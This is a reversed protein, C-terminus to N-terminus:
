EAWSRSREVAKHWLSVLKERKDSEMQPTFTVDCSMHKKVDNKDKWFGVTIGALFAAGLATTEKVVPRAISSNCVDAQFQM